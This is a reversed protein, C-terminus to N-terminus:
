VMDASTSSCMPKFFMDLKPQKMKETAKKKAVKIVDEVKIMLNLLDDNNSALALDRMDQTHDWATKLSITKAALVDNEKDSEDGSDAHEDENVQKASQIVAQEWDDGLNNQTVLDSDMNAYDHLTTGGPLLPLLDEEDWSEDEDQVELADTAFGCNKFCKQITEATVTQWASQFWLIADLVTVQRAVETAKSMEDMLFIVHRMLKKRYHLKTAQIIGADMPQLKSTTNPPFFALKVNPLEVHPHASCNDMFLLINRNQMRMKHNLRKLWKEFLGSNMWAKKNAEYTVGLSTRHYGKFCRPNVSKGIVLPKVKEGTASACLLVTIREKALKGGSCRDGKQVLSRTPLTRYFLGTEDCNFIDKMQYGRCKDALRMSWDDVTDQNVDAAEGSLVACKISHRVQFRHLWGNSATFDDHGMQMGLITAKEQIIKGTVPINKSRATCFWEFVSSNLGDYLCRRAKIIKRDKATGSESQALIEDKNKIINNVQTKGVEFDSALKRSSEGQESLRIVKVKRELTLAKRKRSSSM